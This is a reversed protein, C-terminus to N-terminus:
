LLCMWIFWCQHVGKIQKDELADKSLSRSLHHIPCMEAPSYEPIRLWSAADWPAWDLQKDSMPAPSFRVKLM